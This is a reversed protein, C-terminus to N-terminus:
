GEKLEVIVAHIDTEGVNEVRHKWMANSLVGGDPVEAEVTEGNPLHINAKGGNLFYVAEASHVHESDSQGAPLKMELIRVREDELLVSYVEPSTEHASMGEPVVGASDRAGEKIEVVVAKLDADGINEVSHTWAEHSLPAGDPVDMEVSEGDPLHIRLRSGTVFYAAEDPHSHMGDNVGAPLNMELIRVREDEHLLSYVNPNVVDAAMSMSTPEQEVTEDHTADDTM